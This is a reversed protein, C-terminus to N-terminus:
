PYKCGVQLTKELVSTDRQLAAVKIADSYEDDSLEPTKSLIYLVTDRPDSVVAWGYDHSLGIIWYDGKNPLGFDVKFKANGKPDVNTATGEISVLKGEPSFLNCTNLVGVEGSALPTLKQRSCVCGTEFLVPKRAIQYWTGAYKGLEVHDVTKLEDADAHSASFSLISLCFLILLNKLVQAEKSSKM